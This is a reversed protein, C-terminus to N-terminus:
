NRSCCLSGAHEGNEQPDLVISVLTSSESQVLWFGEHFGPINDIKGHYRVVLCENAIRDETYSINHEKFLECLEKKKIKLTNVRLVLKPIMNNFKCIEITDEIGYNEIWRKVMWEPHSYRISVASIPDKKLDPFQILEKKRIFNRLVGNVFASSKKDYLKVLEVYSNLVAYDPTELYELEYIGLRLANRVYYSLKKLSKDSIKRIYYDLTLKHRIVGSVLGNLESPVLVKASNDSLVKDAPCKKELTKILTELAVKRVDM